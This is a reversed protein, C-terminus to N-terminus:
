NGFHLHGFPGALKECLSIPRVHLFLGAIMPGDAVIVNHMEHIEPRFSLSTPQHPRRFVHPPPTHHPRFLIWIFGGYM